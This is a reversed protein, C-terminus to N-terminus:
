CLTALSLKVPFAIGQTVLPFFQRDIATVSFEIEAIDKSFIGYPRKNNESM